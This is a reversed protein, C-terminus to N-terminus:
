EIYKNFEKLIPDGLSTKYFQKREVPILYKCKKKSISKPWLIISILYNVLVCEQKLHNKM